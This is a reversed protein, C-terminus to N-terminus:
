NQSTSNGDFFSFDNLISESLCGSSLNAGLLLMMSKLALHFHIESRPCWQKKGEIVPTILALHVKRLHM